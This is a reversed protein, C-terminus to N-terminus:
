VYLRGDMKLPLPCRIELGPACGFPSSGSQLGGKLDLNLICVKQFCSILNESLKGKLRFLGSFDVSARYM